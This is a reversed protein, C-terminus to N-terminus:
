SQNSQYVAKYVNIKVHNQRTSKNSTEIHKQRSMDRRNLKAVEM